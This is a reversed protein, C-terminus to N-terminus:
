VEEVEEVEEIDYTNISTGEFESFSLSIDESDM